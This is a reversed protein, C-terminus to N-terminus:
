ELENMEDIVDSPDPMYWYGFYENVQEDLNKNTKQRKSQITRNCRCYACSGHNKCSWDFRRSDYYPKRKEKGHYIAKELSM